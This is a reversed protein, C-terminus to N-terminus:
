KIIKIKELSPWSYVPTIEDDSTEEIVFLGFEPKLDDPTKIPPPREAKPGSLSSM